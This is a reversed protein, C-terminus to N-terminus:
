FGAYSRIGVVREKYYPNRFEDIHIGKSYSAHVFYNKGVYIGVHDVKATGPSKMAFFILDGPLVQKPKLFRTAKFQDRSVRPLNLGVKNFVLQVFGSCDLGSKSSQGGWLYPVSLYNMTQAVIKQRADKISLSHSPQIFILILIFTNIIKQSM